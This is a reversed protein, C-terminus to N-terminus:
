VRERCSARGIQTNPSTYYPSYANTVQPDGIVIMKYSTEKGGPLRRLTFDYIKKKNSVAQYFCATRDTASHTPVEFEAPVSFYIFRALSDRKMKYRGRSDTKVCKFGDSVIVGAVGKGETDKLSGSINFDRKVVPKKTKVTDAVLTATTNDVVKHIIPLMDHKRLHLTVGVAVLVCCIFVVLGTNM